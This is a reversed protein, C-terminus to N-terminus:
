YKEKKIKKMKLYSNWKKMKRTMTEISFLKPMPVFPLVGHILLFCCSFLMHFAILWALKVHDLFTQNNEKLHKM